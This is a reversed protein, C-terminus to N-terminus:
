PHCVGNATEKVTIEEYNSVSSQKREKKKTKREKKKKKKASFIYLGLTISWLHTLDITTVKPGGM